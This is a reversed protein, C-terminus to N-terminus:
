AEVAERITKAMYTLRAEDMGPYVGVWFTDRTIHDTTTLDSIVRYSDTNRLHNFCPHRLINGSFLMRTQVGAAEIAPVVKARDVGDRCTVMFGFWSPDSHPEPEPLILKNSVPELAERLFSWNRKRAEVFSPFRELQACGVAAQMDTAKLNFGLHSYVYKHDYGTPLEGHQGDFRHGCMNDQGPACM